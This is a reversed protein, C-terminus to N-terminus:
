PGCSKNYHPYNKLINLFYPRPTHSVRHLAQRAFCSSQFGLVMLIKIESNESYTSIKM